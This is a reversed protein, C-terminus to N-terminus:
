YQGQYRKFALAKPKEISTSSALGHIIHSRPLYSCVNTREGGSSVQERIQPDFVELVLSSLFTPITLTMSFPNSHWFSAPSSFPSELVYSRSCELDFIGFVRSVKKCFGFNLTPLVLGLDALKVSVDNLEFLLQIEETAEELIISIREDLAMVSGFWVRVVVAGAREVCSVWWRERSEDWELEWRRSERM